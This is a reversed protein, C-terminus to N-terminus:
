KSSYKAFIAMDLRHIFHWKGGSNQCQQSFLLAIHLRWMRAVEGMGAVKMLRQFLESPEVNLFLLNGLIPLGRPGPLQDLLWVKQQRKFFLVLSYIVLATIALIILLDTKAWELTDSGLWLM